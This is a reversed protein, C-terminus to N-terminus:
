LHCTVEWPRYHPPDMPGFIIRDQQPWYPKPLPMVPQPASPTLHGCRKRVIDEAEAIERSLRDREATKTRIEELLQDTTKDENKM